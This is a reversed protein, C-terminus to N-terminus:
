LAQNFVELPERKTEQEVIDLASYTLRQAVTKKGCKMIKNIFRALEASNYRPDPQVNRRDARRRRSM